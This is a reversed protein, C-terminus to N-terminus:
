PKPLVLGDNNPAVLHKLVRVIKTFARDLYSPRDRGEREAATLPVTALLLVVVATASFAKKFM